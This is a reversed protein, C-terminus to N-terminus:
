KKKKTDTDTRPKGPSPPPGTPLWPPPPLSHLPPPPPLPSPPLLHGCPINGRTCPRRPAATSRRRCRRRGCGSDLGGAARCGWRRIATDGICRSHVQREPNRRLGLEEEMEPAWVDPEKKRKEGWWWVKSERTPSGWGGVSILPEKQRKREQKYGGRLTRHQFATHLLDQVPPPPLWRHGHWGGLLCVPIRIGWRWSRKLASGLSLEKDLPHAQGVPVAGPGLLQLYLPTETGNGTAGNM